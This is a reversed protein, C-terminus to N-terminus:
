DPDPEALSIKLPYREAIVDPETKGRLWHYPDPRDVGHENHVHSRKEAKPATPM